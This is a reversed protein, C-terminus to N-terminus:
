ASLVVNSEDSTDELSSMYNRIVDQLEELLDDVSQSEDMSSSANADDHPPPPPPGQPRMEALEETSLSGSGDTDLSAFLEASQEDSVEDPKGAAFEASTLAGDGDVDLSSFRDQDGEGDQSATDAQLDSLKLLLSQLLSSLKDLASESLDESESATSTQPTKSSTSSASTASALEDASLVGDGNKDLSSKYSTYNSSLASISTM